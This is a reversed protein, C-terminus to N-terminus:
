VRHADAEWTAALLGLTVAMLVYTPTFSLFSDFLGHVGIAVAAAAIGIAEGGGGDPASLATVAVARGARWLLWLLPVAALLGGGVIVELYMNNTHVRPDANALGAYPGYLLRFNDIGIGTLPHAAILRGATEWLRLRGPRSTVRPLPVTAVAARTIAPGSVVADSRRVTAGPETSFWRIGEQVVDWQLSYRGPQPPAQVRAQITVTQGPRVVSPFATRLGESALMRDRDVTLWRYSIHFPPVAESDWVVRGTNTLSLRVALREGTRLHLDTRPGDIAARYWGTEQETTMRLWVSGAPRSWVFLGASIALLAALAPVVPDGPRRSRLRSAGVFLLCVGLVLMGARTYTVIIGEAILVLAAFCVAAEVRRRADLLFVLLGLGFALVIELYMSAITPYQLSGGARVQAGVLAVGPRFWRLARLVAPVEEYELVALVAVLTGAACAYLLVRRRRGPTTAANLALLSVGFAAAGRFVMHVANLREAPAALAAVIMAALLAMWPWALPSRWRPWARTRALSVAWLGAGALVGAEVSSISQAPLHILPRWFEFPAMVVIACAAVYAATSAPGDYGNMARSPQLFVARGGRAFGARM